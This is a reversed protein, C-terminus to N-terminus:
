RPYPLQPVGRRAKAQVNGERRNPHHDWIRRGQSGRNDTRRRAEFPLAIKRGIYYSMDGKGTRPLEPRRGRGQRKRRLELSARAEGLEKVQILKSGRRLSACPAVLDSPARVFMVKLDSNRPDAFRRLILALHNPESLLTANRWGEAGFNPQAALARWFREGYTINANTNVAHAVLPAGDARKGGKKSGTDAVHVSALIPPEGETM